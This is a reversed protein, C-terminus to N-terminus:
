RNAAPTARERAISVVRVLRRGEVVLEFTGNVGLRTVAGRLAALPFRVVRGDRARVVVDRVRGRYHEALQDASIAVDVVISESRPTM